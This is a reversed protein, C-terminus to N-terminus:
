WARLGKPRTTMRQECSPLAATVRVRHCTDTGHWGPLTDWRGIRAAGNRGPSVTHAYGGTRRGPGRGHGIMVSGGDPHATPGALQEFGREAHVASRISFTTWVYGLRCWM